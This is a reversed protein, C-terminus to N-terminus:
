EGDTSFTCRFLMRFILAGRMGKQANMAFPAFEVIEIVCGRIRFAWYKDLVFSDLYDHCFEAKIWNLGRM